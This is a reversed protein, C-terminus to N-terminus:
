AGGRCLAFDIAELFVKEQYKPTYFEDIVARCAASMRPKCPAHFLMAHMKAALDAADGFRFYGGTQGEVITEVEPGHEFAANDCTLVPTGYVLSHMALLGVAGPAVCLDAALFLRALRAEDYVPGVFYVRDAVGRARALERLRSEEPGDGILVAIIPPSEREGRSLTLHPSVGGVALSPGHHTAMAEILLELRKRRELRGSHVILRSGPDDAGFERRVAAIDAPAITEHLRVQADHDLSNRVVFIRRPDMGRSVFHDRAWTGYLLVADASELYIKRLLWKLGRQPEKAGQGWDLIPIGRLSCVARLLWNTLSRTGFTIVADPRERWVIGPAEPQWELGGLLPGRLRRSRIARRRIGDGAQVDDALAVKGGGYVTSDEGTVVTFDIQPNQSLRRYLAARYHPISWVFLLVRPVRSPHADDMLLCYGCLTGTGRPM